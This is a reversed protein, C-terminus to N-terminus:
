REGEAPGSDLGLVLPESVRGIRSVSRVAVAQTSPPATMSRTAAPLITTRWTAGDWTQVTWLWELPEGTWSVTVGAADRQATAKPEPAPLAYGPKWPAPPALAGEQYPGQRLATAVGGLDDRLAKISFHVVGTAGPQDRAAEVQAVIEGASWGKTAAQSTYSGPWLLRGKPNHGAWWALLKTYSHGKSDIPWYLQPTFYDVWGEELWLKSDAYLKEYPDFGTIGEPNGPRWIGFPSVGFRVDPKIEAVGRSIAQIFRDVNARRWSARDLRGDQPTQDCYDSWSADDPFDLPGGGQESPRDIPYPYFYDDFHVGDVDYRRVVDEVVAISHAVAAADGPDLWLYEGYSRVSDPIRKSVHQPSFPGKGQPHSARYPNFWAHLEIGRSHAEEIATELPDWDGDPPRGMEGTLFESWPELESRYLADCAPRVQLVVANLNLEAALDLLGILEARQTSVPLGPKTPWDINAVTAIWAARFESRVAPPSPIPGSEARAADIGCALLLSVVQQLLFGLRALM